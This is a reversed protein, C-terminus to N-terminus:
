INDDAIDGDIVIRGIKRQAEITEPNREVIVYEVGHRDFIDAIWRGALGFGAIIVRGLQKAAEDYSIDAVRVSVPTGDPWGVAASLRITGKKYVGLYETPKPKDQDCDQDM